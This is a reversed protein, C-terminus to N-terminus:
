IASTSLSIFHYSLSNISTTEIKAPPAIVANSDSIGVDALAASGITVSDVEVTVVLPECVVLTSDGGGDAIAGCNLVPEFLLRHTVGAPPATCVCISPIDM